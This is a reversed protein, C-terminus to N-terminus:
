CFKPEKIKVLGHQYAYIVLCLRDKVELKSFISTLHHRVTSESINLTQMIEKNSLGEGIASIVQREKPTLSKIKQKEYDRKEIKVASFNNLTRAMLTRDIWIEGDSIKEVARVFTEWPQNHYVIGSAGLSVARELVVQDEGRSLLLIKSNPLLRQLEKMQEVGTLCNTMPSYVVVEPEYNDIMDQSASVTLDQPSDFEGVVKISQNKELISKLGARIIRGNEVLLVNIKTKQSGIQPQM